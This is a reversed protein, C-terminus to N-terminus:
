NAFFDGENRLSITEGEAFSQSSAVVVPQFFTIGRLIATHQSDNDGIYVHIRETFFETGLVGERRRIQNIFYGNSDRNIASNPVLTFSNTSRSEFQITFTEGQTIPSHAYITLVKGTDSLNINTVVGTLSHLSNHLMAYSGVTIFNNSLPM